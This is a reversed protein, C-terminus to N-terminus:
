NHFHTFTSCACVAHFTDWYLTKKRISNKRVWTLYPSTRLLDRYEDRTRSFLSWFFSLIQVSERLSVIKNINFIQDLKPNYLGCEFKSFILWCPKVLYDVDECNNQLSVPFFINLWSKRFYSCTAFLNLRSSHCFNQTNLM